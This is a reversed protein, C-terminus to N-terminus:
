EGHKGCDTLKRHFLRHFIISVTERLTIYIYSWEERKTTVLENRRM